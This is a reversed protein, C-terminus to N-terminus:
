TGVHLSDLDIRLTSHYLIRHHLFLTPGGQCCYALTTSSYSPFRKGLEQYGTQHAFFLVPDRNLRLAKKFRAKFPAQTPPLHKVKITMCIMSNSGHRASRTQRISTVLQPKYSRNISPRSASSSSHSSLRSVSSTAKTHGLM